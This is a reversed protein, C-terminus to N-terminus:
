DNKMEDMMVNNCNKKWIHKRKLKLCKNNHMNNNTQYVFIMIFKKNNIPIPKFVKLDM